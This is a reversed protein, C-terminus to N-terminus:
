RNKDKVVAVAKLGVEANLAKWEQWLHDLVSRMRRTLNEDANELIAPMQNRLNTPGKAFTIGRELLFGRIQHILAARHHVVRDRVRHPAQLDLGTASRRRQSCRGRQRSACTNRVM